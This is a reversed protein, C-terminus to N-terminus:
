FYRVLGVTMRIVGFNDSLYEALIEATRKIPVNGTTVISSGQAADWGVLAYRIPSSAVGDGLAWDGRRELVSVIGVNRNQRIISPAEWIPESVSDLDLGPDLAEDDDVLVWGIHTPDHWQALKGSSAWINREIVWNLSNTNLPLIQEDTDSPDNNLNNGTFYTDMVRQLAETVVSDVMQHNQKRIATNRVIFNETVTTNTSAIGIISMIVLLMLVILIISGDQHCGASRCGPLHVQSPFVLNNNM